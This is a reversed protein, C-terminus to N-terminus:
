YPNNSKTVEIALGKPILGRYDFMNKNLWNIGSYRPSSLPNDMENGCANLYETREEETMSSMPRLYPKIYKCKGAFLDTFETNDVSLKHIGNRDLIIVGYPLRACLDKLLLEKDEQMMIKIKINNGREADILRGKFLKFDM